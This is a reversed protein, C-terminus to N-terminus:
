GARRSRSGTIADPRRVPLLLALIDFFAPASLTPSVAMISAPVAITESPVLGTVGYLGQGDDLTEISLAINRAQAHKVANTVAEDLIRVIQIIHWPRLEPHLPLGQPMAVRWDLAIDHPRLQMAARERWSGLALMLDGGIDDMSDIVLRLDKLAARAADTITAGGQGRESLAVISILQGGLGHLHRGASTFKIFHRSWAILNRPRIGVANTRSLGIVVLSRGTKPSIASAVDAQSSAASCVANV